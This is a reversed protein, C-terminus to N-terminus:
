KKDWVEDVAKGGYNGIFHSFKKFFPYAHAPLMEGHTYVNINKNETQALLKESYIYLLM